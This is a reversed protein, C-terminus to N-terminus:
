EFYFSFYGNTATNHFPIKQEACTQQWRKALWPFNSGDAIIQKPQVDQLLRQLNLKPSHTLLVADVKQKPYQALSDVVLIIQNDFQLVSPVNTTKMQSVGSLKAYNNIVDDLKLADDVYFAVSKGNQYSLATNKFRQYVYAQKKTELQKKTFLLGGQFVIVTLLLAYTTKVTKHYLWYMLMAVLFLSGLLLYEDFYINRFIFLEQRAVIATVINMFGVVANLVVVLFASVVDFIGLFLVVFGLVLIPFLLPVILVNSVFFLMPFQHFYYLSIPLVGIQASLGLVFISWFYHVMRYKPQWWREFIPYFVLISFVAAYSMQFGVEYLYNPRILVLILMSVMLADFKGQRKSILMAVAIFSFMTVARVVSPSLGALFAYSWLGLLLVLLRIPKWFKGIPLVNVFFLLIFTVVGVHLGSIALIHVAGADIYNQYVSTELQSREGLLLTKLVSASTKSFKEHDLVQLMRNRIDESFARVSFADSGKREVLSVVRGQWFVNQRQMYRKFDFQHPNKATKIDETYASFVIIENRKFNLSDFNEKPFLCLLSGSVTKSDAATLAIKYSFSFDNENQKEIVKGELVYYQNPTLQKVYHNEVSLPNHVFQTLLGVWVSAFFVLVGFSYQVIKKSKAGYVFGALLLLVIAGSAYLYVQPFDINGILIGLVIGSLVTLIATNVFRM